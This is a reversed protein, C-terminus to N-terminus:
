NTQTASVSAPDPATLYAGRKPRQVGQAESEDGNTRKSGAPHKLHLTPFHVELFRNDPFRRFSEFSDSTPRLSLWSCLCPLFTLLSITCSFDPLHNTQPKLNQTSETFLM